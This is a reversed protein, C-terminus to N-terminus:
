KVEWKRTRRFVTSENVGLESAAWKRNGGCYRLCARIHRQLAHDLTWDIMGNERVLPPPKPTAVAVEDTFRPVRKRRQPLPLVTM